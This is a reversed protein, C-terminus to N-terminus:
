REDMLVAWVAKFAKALASEMEASGAFIGRLERMVRDAGALILGRRDLIRAMKDVENLHGRLEKSLFAIRSYGEKPELASTSILVRADAIDEKLKEAEQLLLKRRDTRPYQDNAWAILDGMSGTYGMVTALTWIEIATTANEVTDIFLERDPGDLMRLFHATPTTGQAATM